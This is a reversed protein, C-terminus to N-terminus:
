GTTAAAKRYEEGVYSRFPEAFGAEFKRWARRYAPKEAMLSKFFVDAGVWLAHPISGDLNQHYFYEWANLELFYYNLCRDEALPPTHDFDADCQAVIGALTDNDILFEIPRQGLSLANFHSQSRLLRTNDRIQVALYIVSVVVAIAGAIEAIRACLELKSKV